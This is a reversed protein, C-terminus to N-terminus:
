LLRLAEDKPLEKIEGTQLDYYVFRANRYMGWKYMYRLAEATYGFCNQSCWDGFKRIHQKSTNSPYLWMVAFANESLNCTFVRTNYSILGMESRNIDFFIHASCSYLKKYKM